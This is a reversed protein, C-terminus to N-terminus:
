AWIKVQSFLARWNRSLTLRARPDAGEPGAGREPSCPSNRKPRSIIWGQCPRSGPNRTPASTGSWRMNRFSARDMRDILKEDGSDTWELPFRGLPQSQAAGALLNELRSIAELLKQTEAARQRRAFEMLFWRGRATEMVAEQIRDYDEAVLGQPITTIEQM